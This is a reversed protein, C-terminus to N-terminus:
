LWIKLKATEVHKRSCYHLLVINSLCCLVSKSNSTGGNPRTLKQDSNDQHELEFTITKPM